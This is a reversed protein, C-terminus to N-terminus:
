SRLIQDKPKSINCHQQRVFDEAQIKDCIETM